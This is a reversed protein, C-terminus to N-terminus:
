WKTTMKYDYRKWFTNLVVDMKTMQLWFAELFFRKWVSGFFAELTYEFTNM